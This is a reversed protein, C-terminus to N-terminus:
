NPTIPPTEADPDVGPPATAGNGPVAPRPADASGRIQMGPDDTVCYNYLRVRGDGLRVPSVPISDYECTPRPWIDLLTHFANDHFPTGMAATGLQIAPFLARLAPTRLRAARTIALFNTVLNTVPDATEGIVGGLTALQGPGLDLLRRLEDDAASFQRFLVGSGQVLTTLDPQAHSTTEAIVELHELLSRTQPLLDTLGAMARSLGGIVTRLRDPGDALAKDLEGVITDLRRPNLGSVFASTDTLFENITVPTSTKDADIVGGDRLYPAADSVPRFDLYQEGAASLRAVTVTGDAPIRVAADIEAVAVVGRDALGVSRVTGVRVGRFTVDGRPLLGGSEALRVRVTYMQRLPDAGIVDVALYASGGILLMILGTISFATVHRKAWEALRVVLAAGLDLLPIIEGVARIAANELRTGWPAKM